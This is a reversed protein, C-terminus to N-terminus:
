KTVMQAASTCRVPCFSQFVTYSWRRDFRHPCGPSTGLLDVAAIRCSAAVSAHGLSEGRYPHWRANGGRIPRCRVATDGGRLRSEGRAVSSHARFAGRGVHRAVLMAPGSWVTRLRFTGTSDSLTREESEFLELTVGALPQGDPRQVRGRVMGDPTAAPVQQAVAACM